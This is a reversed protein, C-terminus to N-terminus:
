LCFCPIMNRAHNGHQSGPMGNANIYAITFYDGVKELRDRLWFEGFNFSKIIQANNAGGPAIGLSEFHLYVENLGKGVGLAGAGDSKLDTGVEYLSLLFVKADNGLAFNSTSGKNLWQKRVPTLADKVSAALDGGTEKWSYPIPAQEEVWSFSLEGFVSNRVAPEMFMFTLGAMGSGDAKRDQNLGIIRLPYLANHAGLRLHM